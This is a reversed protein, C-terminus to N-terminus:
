PGHNIQTDILANGVPPFIRQGQTGFDVVQEVAGVFHVPAVRAGAAAEIDAQAVVVLSDCQGLAQQMFRWAGCLLLFHADASKVRTEEESDGAGTDPSAPVVPVAGSIARHSIAM